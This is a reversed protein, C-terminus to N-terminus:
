GPVAIPQPAATEEAVWTHAPDLSSRIVHGDGAMGWLYYLSYGPASALPHYGKATAFADDNGVVHVENLSRDPSYLYQLAFGQPPDIQYFAVEQLRVEDPYRDEDHKHPPYSAWQGSEVVTEGVLLRSAPFGEGVIPYVRRRFGQAGEDVMTVQGPEVLRPLYDQDSRATFVALQAPKAATVAYRRHRPLYAAMPPGAFVSVRALEWREGDADVTCAGSLMVLVAEREGLDFSFEEDRPVRLVGFELDALGADGPGALKSYGPRREYHFVRQM